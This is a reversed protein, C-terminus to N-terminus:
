LAKFRDFASSWAMVERPEYRQLDVSKRVIERRQGPELEGMAEAQVLLNGTLTADVPGAIVECGTANATMQCLSTVLAGGGVIHIRRVSRGSVRELKEIVVRYKLALSELICRAIEGMSTPPNQDTDLCHQYVRDPMDLGPALFRHHDPDVFCRFAPAAEAEAYIQAWELERAEPPDSERRATAASSPTWARRCEQLIWLGMVNKLLRTTDNLGAENTVDAAMAEGSLIPEPLELGVLSWTGSSIYAARDDDAAMPVAAVASATDHTGTAVIMVSASLGLELTLEERLPGLITGPEVIEPLVAGPIGFTELMFESWNRSRPDYFQTTSANTRECVAVGSLWYHLLDPVMLFTSARELLGPADRKVALLQYLTNFPLFQVGTHEYLESPSVTKFAADMLGETRTDRYSHVGDLMLGYGDLLAYDVAWSDVGISSVEAGLVAAREGALRIGFLIERWLGLVDWYLRPGQPTPVSVPANVFRHVIEVGLREETIGGLAVRGGSAGLDVAIHVQNM